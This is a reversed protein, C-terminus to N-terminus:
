AKTKMQRLNLPLKILFNAGKYQNYQHMFTVNSASISGKMNKEIIQHTMYLGIGTGQSQHKTTFYPEFIKDIVEEKIGGGNDRINISIFDDNKRINIFIYKHIKQEIMVDRANYFVNLLAQTLENEYNDIVADEIKEIVIEIKNNKFMGEFLKINKNILNWVSFENKEKNSNFFNRFDDITQSLHQTTKNLIKLEKLSEEKKFTNYELKLELGTAVTSILSLPQRWQHAINDIMEGMAAMKSQQILLKEQNKMKTIDIVSSIRVARGNIQTNVGQVIASFVDGNKRIGQVEYPMTTKKFNSQILKLTNKYAFNELKLGIMENKSEYGFVKVAVDNVDICVEGEYVFMAEMVSNLLVEFSELSDELKNKTTILEKHKYLGFIIVVFIAAFIKWFLDYNFGKEFTVSLYKNLITQKTTLDIENVIKSIIDALIPEDNRTAIGLEFDKELKGAIKLQNIYENRLIYAVAPMAGLFAFLEGKKVRELGDEVSNVDVIKNNPYKARLFENTSYGKVIGIKKENIISKIDSIFLKDVKTTIVIPFSIYPETFDFHKRRTPTKQLLHYYIVSEVKRM